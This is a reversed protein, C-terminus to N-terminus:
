PTRFTGNLAIPAFFNRFCAGWYHGNQPSRFGQPTKRVGLFMCLVLLVNFQIDAFSRYITSINFLRSTLDTLAWFCIVIRVNMMEVVQKGSQSQSKLNCITQIQCKLFCPTSPFNSSALRLPTNPNSVHGVVVVVLILLVLLLVLCRPWSTRHHTWGSGNHNSKNSAQNGPSDLAPFLYSSKEEWNKDNKWRLEPMYQSKVYRKRQWCILATFRSDQCYRWSHLLACLKFCSTMLHVLHVLHVVNALNILHVLVM